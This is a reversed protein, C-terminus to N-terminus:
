PVHRLNSTLRLPFYEAIQFGDRSITTGRAINKKSGEKRKGRGWEEKERLAEAM